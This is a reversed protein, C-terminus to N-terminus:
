LSKYFNRSIELYLSFNRSLELSLYHKIKLIFLRTHHVCICTMTQNKKERELM